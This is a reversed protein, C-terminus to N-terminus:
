DLQLHDSRGRAGLDGLSVEPWYDLSAFRSGASSGGFWAGGFISPRPDDPDGDHGWVWMNGTTQMLGFKSTRAPDLATMEPEDDASTKETVALAAAFFHAYSLLQKGHQAMVALATAYDFCTFRGGAPNEPPTGGDAIPVNFRSTGALRDAATLYIDCWFRGRPGDVLTMGRPDPCAPRFKVDWLSCPNIQPVADGGARGQANGGPAFHFGGLLFGPDPAAALRAIALQGAVFAVAYDAGTVYGHEGCGVDQPVPTDEEFVHAGFATGAKVALANPATLKFIPSTCDSKRLELAPAMGPPWATTSKLTEQAQPWATASKVAENM